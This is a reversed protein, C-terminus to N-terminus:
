VGEANEVQEHWNFGMDKLIKNQMVVIQAEEGGTAFHQHITYPPIYVFDGRKWEVKKPEKEWDWIFEDQCDFMVDWHLDYGEGEIVFFVEEALHRHKGSAKGPRIFQKYIEMCCEKTNLKDHIIHQILGDPSEEFPMDEQKVVNLRQEYEKRFNASDELNQAYWDCTPNAGIATPKSSPM